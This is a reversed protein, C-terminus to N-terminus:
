VGIKREIPKGIVRVPLTIAGLRGRQAEIEAETADGQGGVWTRFARGAPVRLEASEAHKWEDSQWGNKPELEWVQQSIHRTRLDAPLWGTNPGVIIEFDSTNRLIVRLKRTYDIGEQDARELKVDLVELLIAESFTASAENLVPFETVRPPTWLGYRGVTGAILTVMTIMFINVGTPAQDGLMANVGALVAFLLAASIWLWIPSSVPNWIQRVLGVLGVIAGLAAFGLQLMQGMNAFM